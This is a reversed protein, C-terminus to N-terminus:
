IVKKVKIFDQEREPANGLIAERNEFTRPADARLINTLGSPGPAPMVSSTDAKGLEKMWGLIDTLQGAYLKKEAANLELRSLEAIHAATKETVDM